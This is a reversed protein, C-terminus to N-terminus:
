DWSFRYILGAGTSGGAEARLSLRRTLVYDLAVLNEATAGVGQEYTVYLRDSLRKGLAVVRSETEASQRLAIEDLGVTQALQRTIPVGSSRGGLMLGVATQLTGLDATTAENPPRGLVLWSLKEGESVEPESVLHVQPNQLTGTVEVGAQVPQYKRLATIQLSPNDLPGNFLLAGSEVALRQGYAAFTADVAVVKGEARLAGAANTTLHMQGTVEGNFGHGRVALDKGLDLRLDLILPAAADRRPATVQERGLVVVDDTLTPLRRQDIEIVGRAVQLQGSFAFKGRAVGANGSGNLVLQLNPRNLLRFAKAEWNLAAAGGALQLPLAGTAMFRGEGGAISFEEIRVRDGALRARLHGDRLYVGYPPMDFSLDNGQVTGDLQPGGLTGRASLDANLKGDAQAATLLMASLVRLSALDVNAHMELPSQPTLGIGSAGPAPGTRGEARLTALNSELDLRATIRSEELTASFQANKLGLEVAPRDSLLVDGDTRRIAVRGNLRPTSEISWEGALRATAQMRSRGALALLWQVPLATFEGRSTLAGDAWRLTDVSVEGEALRLGLGALAFRPPAIELAAPATLAVPYKGRNRLETLTGSWGKGREWGGRVRAALDVDPATAQLSATHSGLSGESQVQLRAAVFNRAALGAATLDIDFPADPATGAEGQLAVSQVVVAGPLFLGRGQAEIALRPQSWPGSLTGEAVVRGAIERPGDLARTVQELRPAELQWRLADGRRGFAGRAVLLNAGLRVRADIGTVRPQGGDGAALNARGNSAVPVGGLVSNDIIWRASGRRTAPGFAGEVHGNGNLRGKPYNGFAAPDFRALRVDAALRTPEGMRVRGQAALEGGDASLRLTPVDIQAGQRVAQAHIQMDRQALTTEFTQRESEAVIALAGDLNTERLTSRLARLDLANAQLRLRAFAEAGAVPRQLQAAGALRGGPQLDVVLQTLAAHSFDTEFATQLAAVPVRQDDLPGALANHVSLTGTLMGPRPSKASLQVRLETRPWGPTLAALNISRAQLDITQLPIAAFPTLRAQAQASVDAIVGALDAHMDQLSGSLQLALHGRLQAALGTVGAGAADIGPAAIAAELKFPRTADVTAELALPGWPTTLALGPVHHGAPGGEYALRLDTFLYESEGRLVAISGVTAREVQVRLPLGLNAPLSPPEAPPEEKVQAQGMRVVIREVHLSEIRLTGGALRALAPDIRIGHAEIVRDETEHVLKDITVESALSGQAGEIRLSPGAAGRLRDLAWNLGGETGALWWAGGAVILVLAAVVLLTSLLARRVWGSSRLM